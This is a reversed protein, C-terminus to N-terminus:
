KKTWGMIIMGMSAIDAIPNVNAFERVNDDDDTGEAFTDICTVLEIVYPRMSEADSLPLILLGKQYSWAIFDACTAVKDANDATRWEKITAQHLTGGEYWEKAQASTIVFLVSVIIVFITSKRM